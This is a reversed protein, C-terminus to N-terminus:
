RRLAITVLASSDATAHVGHRAGGALLLMEGAQLATTSGDLEIDLAGEVCQITVEGPVQHPPLRRGAPLVLRFVELDESKFLASTQETRLRAGFPRVDLSQGPTGHRLAM